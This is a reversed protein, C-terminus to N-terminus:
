SYLVEDVVKDPVKGGIGSGGLGVIDLEEDATVLSLQSQDTCLM